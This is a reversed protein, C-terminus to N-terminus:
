EVRFERSHTEFEQVAGDAPKFVGHHTIRYTGARTEAPVDWEVTAVLPAPGKAGPTRRPKWRLKVEWDGDVAVTQWKDGERREIAVYQRNARYANRPDGSWFSAKAISGRACTEAVDDVISGPEGTPPTGDPGTALKTPRVAGRVDVPAEASTSPRRAELDSALRAFEQQFAAQTWPGYLTSAGEYHQVEYEERTAVYGSYDNAYGAIVVYQIDPMEKKVAERFRRGSMTTYEAPGVVIALQGIRAVSVPLVQPLAPPTAAGPAILIPKPLHSRRLEASPPPLPVLNKAIVEIFPEPQLMGERFMPQGGGDEMSGAGFSYGYAAAATQQDGAHTFADRVMVHSLDVYAQRSDVPGTLEEKASEFLRIATDTQRGGIIRTSDFEDKGPGRQKLTLNPTVDGCNSQAFAVVFSEADAPSLGKQGKRWREMAYAAYGKNDSSILKNSFSMSTPHVAHWSLVGLPKDGAVFKLMTLETDIDSAYKAREQEPNQLYAKQSRQAGGNEVEGRAILIHGPRLDNHAALISAAIGDVLAQYHETVFPTGLATDSGYHWYSGPVAHSHTAALIVNDIRYLNGLTPRLKDFVSLLLSHTVSMMDTTVIALRRDGQPEAVIFTRAYQRLHIGETIQDPRVYGLMKIGVPPGTIDAKGRGVRYPEAGQAASALLALIGIVAAFLPSALVARVAMHRQM